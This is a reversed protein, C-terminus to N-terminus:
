AGPRTLAAPARKDPTHTGPQVTPQEPHIHPECPEARGAGVTSSTGAAEWVAPRALLSPNSADQRAHPCGDLPEFFTGDYGRLFDRQEEEALQLYADVTM